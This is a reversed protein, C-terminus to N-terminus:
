YIAFFISACWNERVLSEVLDMPWYCRAFSMAAKVRVLERDCGPVMEGRVKVVTRENWEYERMHKSFTRHKFFTSRFAPNMSAFACVAGLVCVATSTVLMIAAAESNVHPRDGIRYGLVLM